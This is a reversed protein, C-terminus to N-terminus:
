LLFVAYKKRVGLVANNVSQEWILCDNSNLAHMQPINLTSPTLRHLSNSGYHASHATDAPCTSFAFAYDSGRLRIRRFSHLGISSKGWM